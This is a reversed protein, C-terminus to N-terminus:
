RSAAISALPPQRREVLPRLGFSLVKWMVKRHFLFLMGLYLATAGAATAVTVALTPHVSRAAIWAPTAAAVAIATPVLLPRSLSLRVHRRIGHIITVTYAVFGAGMGLGVATAGLFPLLPLSVAFWTIAFYISGRLPVKGDGIAWLYGVGATM